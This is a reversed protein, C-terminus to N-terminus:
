GGVSTVAVCREHQSWDYGIFQVRRHKHCRKSEALIPSSVILLEAFHLTTNNDRPDLKHVEQVRCPKTVDRAAPLGFHSTSRSSSRDVSSECEDASWVSRHARYESSCISNM